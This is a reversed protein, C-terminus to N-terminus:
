VRYRRRIEANVVRVNREWGPNRKTAQESLINRLVDLPLAEVSKSDFEEVSPSSTEGRRELIQSCYPGLHLGAAAAEAKLQSHLTEDIEFSLRKNAM